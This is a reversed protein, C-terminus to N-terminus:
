LSKTNGFSFKMNEMYEKLEQQRKEKYKDAIECLAKYENPTLPSHCAAIKAKEKASLRFERLFVIVEIEDLEKREAPSLPFYFTDIKAREKASLLADRLYDYEQSKSDKFLVPPKDFDKRSCATFVLFLLLFIYIRDAHVSTKM